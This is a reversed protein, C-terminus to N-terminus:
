DILQIDPAPFDRWTEGSDFSASATLRFYTDIKLSDLFSKPLTAEFRGAYYEDGTVATPARLTHRVVPGPKSVGEVEIGLLQGEAMFTWAVVSCSAGAQPVKGLSLKRDATGRVQISPYSSTDFDAIRLEFKESTRPQEGSRTVTYYVELQRGLNAAMHERPVKFLRTDGATPRPLIVAGTSGHGEWHLLVQPAPLEGDGLEADQPISVQAGGKLNRPHVVGQHSDDGQEQAADLIVPLPLHLKRQLTLELVQSRRQTGQRSFEYSFAVQAGRNDDSQLWERELHFAMRKSDLSSPDARLSRLTVDRGVAYLVLSDGLELEPYPEVELWLGDRYADDDPDLTSGVLGPIRPAELLPSTPDLWVIDFRQVPSRSSSGDAFEIRYDLFAFSYLSVNAMDLSWELPRGRHREEVEVVQEIVEGQMSEFYWPEWRLYVKDGQAMAAYPATALVVVGNTSNANISCDHADQLHAVPLTWLGDAPRDVFFFRRDSEEGVPDGREDTLWFSYFVQGGRLAAVRDNVIMVEGRGQPDLRIVTALGYQDDVSNDARCGRWNLFIEQGSGVGSYSVWTSLNADGLAGLDISNLREDLHDVDPRDM